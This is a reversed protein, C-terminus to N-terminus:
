DQDVTVEWGTDTNGPGSGSPPVSPTDGSIDTTPAIAATAASSAASQTSTSQVQSEVAAPLKLQTPTIAFAQGFGSLQQFEVGVQGLVDSRFLLPIISPNMPAVQKIVQWAAELLGNTASYASIQNKFDELGHFNANMHGLQGAFGLKQLTPWQALKAMVSVGIPSEFSSLYGAAISLQVSM